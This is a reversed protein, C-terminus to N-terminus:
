VARFFSLLNANERNQLSTFEVRVWISSSLSREERWIYQEKAPSTTFTSHVRDENKKVKENTFFLKLTSVELFVAM